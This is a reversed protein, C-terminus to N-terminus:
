RGRGVQRNFDFIVASIYVCLWTLTIYATIIPFSILGHACDYVHAQLPFWVWTTRMLPFWTRLLTYAATPLVACLLLVWVTAGTATRSLCSALMGMASWLLAQLALMCGVLITSFLPAHYVANESFFFTLAWLQIGSFALYVLTCIWFSLMRSIVWTRVRIPTAYILPMMGLSRERVFGQTALLAAYLLAWPASSLGWVTALSEPTGDFRRLLTVQLWGSAVLLLILPIRGQSSRFWAIVDRRVMVWLISM